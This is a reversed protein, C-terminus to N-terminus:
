KEDTRMSTFDITRRLDINEYTKDGNTSKGRWKLTVKLSRRFAPLFAAYIFPNACSNLAAFFMGITQLPSHFTYEATSLIFSWADWSMSIIFVTAVAGATKTMQKDAIKLIQNTGGMQGVNKM